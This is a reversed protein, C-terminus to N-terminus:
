DQKPDVDGFRGVFLLSSGLEWPAQIPMASAIILRGSGMRVCDPVGWSIKAQARQRPNNGAACCDSLLTM